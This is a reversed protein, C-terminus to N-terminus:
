VEIRFSTPLMAAVREIGMPRGTLYGQLVTCGFLGLLVAQQETEVGEAVVQLELARAIGIIAIVIARDSPSDELNKVFSRDIKLKDLPLQKLYSLSSYGTGFDDVALRLGSDHIINLSNEAGNLHSMIVSETLEIELADVGLGAASLADSIRAVLPSRAFQRASVNVAVPPVELGAARLNAIDHCVRRLVWEGVELILDSDEAVPIFAVPPILGREPHQWRVLAELGTITGGIGEVQPQYEVFLQNNALAVRLERELDLRTRVARGIEESFFRYTNKGQHKSQYMAMDAHILLEEGNRGDRPIAAIGISLGVHTAQGNCIFPEATVEILHAAIRAANDPSDSDVVIVGFEDGGLRALIDSGRLSGRLRSGIEGLVADGMHHGFLDNVKKFGDVDIFLLMSGGGDRQHRLLTQNLAIEFAHRNGLGTLRDHLAMHHLAQEANAIDQRLGHSALRYLAGTILVILALGGIFRILDLYLDGLGIRLRVIGIDNSDLKVPLHLDLFHLSFEHRTEMEPPIYQPPPQPDETRYALLKGDDRYLAVLAIQPLQRAASVAEAATKEDNFALAASASAGILTAEVLTAQLLQNRASLWHQFTLLAFAPLMVVAIIIRLSRRSHGLPNIM